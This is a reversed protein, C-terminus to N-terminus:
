GPRRDAPSSICSTSRPPSLNAHGPMRCWWAVARSPLVQVGQPRNSIWGRLQRHGHVVILPAVHVPRGAAASLATRVRAAERGAKGIYPQQRGRVFLVRDGVQVVARPHHKTNVTFVGFPGILLHDADGGLGLSVAHLVRWGRRALPDLHAGVAREGAAGVRWSRDRTRIGVLRALVRWGRAPAMREAM